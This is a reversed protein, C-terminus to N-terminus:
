RIIFVLLRQFVENYVPMYQKLVDFHFAPTLMKRHRKWKTGSSTVLGEGLYNFNHVTAVVM